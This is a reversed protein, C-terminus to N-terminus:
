RRAELREGHCIWRAESSGRIIAGVEVCVQVLEREAFDGDYAIRERGTM